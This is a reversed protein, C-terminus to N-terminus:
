TIVILMRWNPHCIQGMIIIAFTVTLRQQAQTALTYLIDRLLPSSQLFFCSKCAINSKPFIRVTHYTKQLTNCPINQKTKGRLHITGIACNIGINLCVYRAFYIVISLQCKDFHNLFLKFTGIFYDTAM